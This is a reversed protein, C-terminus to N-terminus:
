PKCNEAISKKLEEITDNKEQDSLFHRNGKEDTTYSRYGRGLNIIENKAAQCAKKLDTEDKEKKYLAQKKDRAEESVIESVKQQHRIISSARERAQRMELESPQKKMKVAESKKDVPKDSYHVKGNEDVWKYVEAVGNQSFIVSLILVFYLKSRHQTRHYGM